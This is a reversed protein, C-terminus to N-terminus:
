RTLGKSHTHLALLSLLTGLLLGSLVADAVLIKCLAFM